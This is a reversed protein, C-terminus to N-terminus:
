ALEYRDILSLTSVGDCEPCKRLSGFWSKKCQTCYTLKRSYTFFELKHLEIVQKTLSLLQDPTFEAKELDISTLSGGTQLERLRKDLESSGPLVTGNQLALKATSSYYPKERSGSFKVRGFGYRDIDLQTLRETAGHDFLMAPLLRREHTRTSKDLFASVIKEM